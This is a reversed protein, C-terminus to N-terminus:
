SINDLLTNDTLRILNFDGADTEVICTFNEIQDGCNLLYKAKLKKIGPSHSHGYILFDAGELICRRVVLEDFNNVMQMASKVKTKLYSSLSWYGMGFKTRWWNYISNCFIATEYARDGLHYLWGISRFAGDFCDGHVLLVNKGSVSKYEYENCVKIDGFSFHIGKEMFDRLAEDHNGIIYVTNVNKRSMKLIKQIFTNHEKSWYWKRSMAQIDIIDGILFVNDFTNDHIFKLLYEVKCRKTGLHIDSVFLSKYHM